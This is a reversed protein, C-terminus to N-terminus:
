WVPSLSNALYLVVAGLGTGLVIIAAGTVRLLKTIKSSDSPLTSTLEMLRQRVLASEKDTQAAHRSRRIPRIDDVTAVQQRASSSASM